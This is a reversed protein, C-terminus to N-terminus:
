YRSSGRAIVGMLLKRAHLRIESAAGSQAAGSQKIVELVEQAMRETAASMSSRREYDLIRQSIGLIARHRIDSPCTEFEGSAMLITDVLLTAVQVPYMKLAEAVDRLKYMDIADPMVEHQYFFARIQREAETLAERALNLYVNDLLLRQSGLHQGLEGSPEGMLLWAKISLCSDPIALPAGPSDQQQYAYALWDPM